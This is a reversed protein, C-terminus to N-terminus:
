LEKLFTALNINKNIIRFKKRIRNRHTEVTKFAVNLMESIEKSSMGSKILNAIELERQSLKLKQESVRSGFTSTISKLNNELMDITKKDLPSGKRRLRKIAPLIIQDVNALINDQIKKKEFQIQELIERLAANKDEIAKQANMRETIDRQIALYNIVKGKEDRIPEIHWENWFESGDKRYNIARGHFVEGNQLVKKLHSLVLRDTKPGQMFRPNKGLVDEPSYGTLKTFGPNVYVIKPGPPNLNTETILISDEAFYAVSALLHEDVKYKKNYDAMTLFNALGNGLLEEM